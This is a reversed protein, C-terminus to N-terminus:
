VTAEPFNRNYYDGNINTLITRRGNPYHIIQSHSWSSPGKNYGQDLECCCGATYVGENIAASHTHGTSAKIGIKMFSKPTARAGNLGIDGHMGCEIGNVTFSEDRKLFRTRNLNKKKTLVNAQWEFLDLERNQLTAKHMAHQMELLFTANELNPEDFHSVEKVWRDLADDHNSKVVVSQCWERQTAHLFLGANKLEDPVSETCMKKMFLQDGRNHHNRVRFDLTDHFVQFRPKLLDVLPSDGFWNAQAVTDNLSIHHIDGWVIADVRHGTTVLGQEYRDTLDYFSGGDEGLIHRMHFQKGNIIEVVVAGLQHHFEAKIGANKQIFNPETVSGTTLLMKALKGPRTPVSELCVKPHPIIASKEGTFTQYGSIPNVTTPLSNMNGLVEVKENLKLRDNMLYKQIAKDYHCAQVKKEADGLGGAWDSGNTNYTIGPIIIEADHHEAFTELNRLFEKNVPTGIQASTVVYTKKEFHGVAEMLKQNDQSMLAQHYWYSVIRRKHGIAKSYATISGAEKVGDLVQRWNPKNSYAM